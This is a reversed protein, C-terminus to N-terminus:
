WEVESGLVQLIYQCSRKLVGGSQIHGEAPTCCTEFVHWNEAFPVFFISKRGISKIVWVIPYASTLKLLFNLFFQSQFNKNCVWSFPARDHHWTMSTVRTNIQIFFCARNAATYHRLTCVALHSGTKLRPKAWSKLPVSNDWTAMKMDFLFNFNQGMSFFLMCMSM